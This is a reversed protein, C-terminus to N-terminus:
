IENSFVDEGSESSSESSSDEEEGSDTDSASEESIKKKSRVDPLVHRPPLQIGHCSCGVVTEALSKVASRQAGEHDTTFAIGDTSALDTATMVKTATDKLDVGRKRSTMEPIGLCVQKLEWEASVWQCALGAFTQKSIGKSKWADMSFGFRCKSEKAKLILKKVKAIGTKHWDHVANRVLNRNGIHKQM